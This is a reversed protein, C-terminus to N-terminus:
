TMERSSLTWIAQPIGIDQQQFGNDILRKELEYRKDLPFHGFLKNFELPRYFMEKPHIVSKSPLIFTNDTFQMSTSKILLDISSDPNDSALEYALLITAEYDGLDSAEKLLDKYLAYYKLFGDKNNEDELEFLADDKHIFALRLVCSPVKQSAAVKLFHENFHSIRKFGTKDFAFRQFHNKPELYSLYDSACGLGKRSAEIILSLGKWTSKETKAKNNILAATDDGTIGASFLLHGYTFLSPAHGKDCLENLISVSNKNELTNGQDYLFSAKVMELKADNTLYLSVDVMDGSADLMWPDNKSMLSIYDPSSLLIAVVNRYGKGDFNLLDTATGYKKRADVIWDHERRGFKDPLNGLIIIKDAIGEKNESVAAQLEKWSSYGWMSALTSKLAKATTTVPFGSALFDGNPKTESAPTRFDVGVHSQLISLQNQLISAAQKAQKM